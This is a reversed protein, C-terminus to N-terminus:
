RGLLCAGDQCGFPCEVSYFARDPAGGNPYGYLSADRYTGVFTTGSGNDDCYYETLKNDTCYDTYSGYVGMKNYNPVWNYIPPIWSNYVGTTTGVIYADAGLGAGPPVTNDSDM